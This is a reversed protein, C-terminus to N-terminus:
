LRRLSHTEQAVDRVEKDTDYKIVYWLTEDSAHRNRVATLRVERSVHKTALAHLKDPDTTNHALAQDSM